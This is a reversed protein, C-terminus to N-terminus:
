LVYRVIIYTPVSLRPVKPYQQSMTKMLERPFAGVRALSYRGYKM